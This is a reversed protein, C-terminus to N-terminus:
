RGASSGARSRRTTTSASPTSRRHWDIQAQGARGLLRRPERDFPPSLQRLGHDDDGRKDTARRRITSGNACHQRRWAGCNPKRKGGHRRRRRGGGSGARTCGARHRGSSRAPVTRWCSRASRRRRRSCSGRCPGAKSRRTRRAPRPASGARLVVLDGLEDAGLRRGLRLSRRPRHARDGGPQGLAVAETKKKAPCPLLRRVSPTSTAGDDNGPPRSRLSAAENIEVPSM